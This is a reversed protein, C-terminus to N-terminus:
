QMEGSARISEGHRSQIKLAVQVVAGGWDRDALWEVAGLGEVGLDQHGQAHLPSGVAPVVKAHRADAEHGVCSVGPGARHQSLVGPQRPNAAGILVVEPSSNHALAIFFNHQSPQPRVQSGETKTSKREWLLVESWKALADKNIGCIKSLTFFQCPTM